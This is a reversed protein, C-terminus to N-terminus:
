GALRGCAMLYTAADARHLTASKFADTDANGAPQGAAFSGDPQFPNSLPRVTLVDGTWSGTVQTNLDSQAPDVYSLHLAISDGAHTAQGEVLYEYVTGQRTCIRAVGNLTSASIRGQIGRYRLDLFLRYEAGQAAQLPGEWVGTLTPGLASMSWPARVWQLGFTLAFAIVGIIALTNLHRM